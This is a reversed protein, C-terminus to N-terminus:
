YEARVSVFIEVIDSLDFPFLKTNVKFDWSVGSTAVSFYPAIIAKFQDDSSSSFGLKAEVGGSAAGQPEGFHFKANIDASGLEGTATQLYYEPHWFLTLIISFIGFRIRPEFLLYFLDLQVEDNAPDLRPVAIQTLFEGGLGTDYFLLLGARWFGFSSAPFSAGAFAELKFRETNVSTWLDASYTGSGLYTDQYFYISTTNWDTLFASSLKIGTGDVVHMGDYRVRDPEPFYLYGRFDSAIKKSGFYDPFIDGAGFTDSEGTFYAFEIPLNLPNRMTINAGKFALNEVNDANELDDNEFDMLIQGGFKFGGAILLEVQGRTGLTFTGGSDFFGRTTLELVPVNIDASFALTSASLLLLAAGLRAGRNTVAAYM